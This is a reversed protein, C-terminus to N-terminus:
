REGNEFFRAFILETIKFAIFGLIAGIIMGGFVDTPYHVYLYLRSFAILFALIYCLAGYKKNYAFVATASAFSSLTHGSPFSYDKPASILLDIGQRADFPRTRAILPKLTLNGVLVGLILAIAVCVGIKRTKKFIMLVASLAIWIYGKDGLHTIFTFVVDFFGNRMIDLFDLFAFEWDM